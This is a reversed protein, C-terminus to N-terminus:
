VINKKGAIKSAILWDTLFLSNLHIINARERKLILPGVFFTLLPYSLIKRFKNIFFFIFAKISNMESKTKADSHTWYLYVHRFFLSDLVRYNIKREECLKLLIKTHYIFLIEIDFKKMDLASILQIMSTPAGGIGKGHHIFLI